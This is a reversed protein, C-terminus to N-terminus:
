GALWLSLHFPFCQWILYVWHMWCFSVLSISVITPTGLHAKGGHRPQGHSRKGVTLMKINHSLCCDGWEWPYPIKVRITKSKYDTETVSNLPAALGLMLSKPPCQLVFHKPIFHTPPYWDVELAHKKTLELLAYCNVM